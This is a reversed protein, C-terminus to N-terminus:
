VNPVDMWVIEAPFGPELDSRWEEMEYPSKSDETWNLYKVPIMMEKMEKWSHEFRKRNLFGLVQEKTRQQYGAGTSDEFYQNMEFQFFDCLCMAQEPTLPIGDHRVVVVSGVRNQWKPPAFGWWSSNPKTDLFMFTASQNDNAGEGNVFTDKWKPNLPYSMAQLPIGMIESMPSIDTIFVPHEGPVDVAEYKERKFHYRDGLCNIRVGQMKRMALTQEGEENDSAGEKYWVLHDMAHRFDELTIDEYHSPEVENGRNRLVVINGKWPHRAERGAVMGITECPLVSDGYFLITLSNKMARKRRYNYQVVRSDPARIRGGLYEAAHPTEIKEGAANEEEHIFVWVIKPNYPQHDFRIARRLKPAPRSSNKAIQSCLIKHSRLDAKQCEVSCYASSRCKTCLKGKAGSIALCNHRHSLM